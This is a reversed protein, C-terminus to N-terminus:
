HGTSASREHCTKAAQHRNRDLSFQSFDDLYALLSSRSIHPPPVSCRKPLQGERVLHVAGPRRFQYRRLRLYPQFFSSSRTGCFKPFSVRACSLWCFYSRPGIVHGMTCCQAPAHDLCLALRCSLSLSLLFFLCSLSLSLCLARSAYSLKM